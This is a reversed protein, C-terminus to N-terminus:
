NISQADGVLEEVMQIFNSKQEGELKSGAEVVFLKDGSSTRIVSSWKDGKYKIHYFIAPGGAITLNPSDISSSAIRTEDIILPGFVTSTHLQKLKHGGFLLYSKPDDAQYKSGLVAPRFPLSPDDIYEGGSIEIYGVERSGNKLGMAAVGKQRENLRNATFEVRPIDELMEIYGYKRLDDRNREEIAQLEPPLVLQIQPVGRDDDPGAYSYLSMMSCISLAGLTLIKLTPNLKM